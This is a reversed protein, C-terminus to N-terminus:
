SKSLELSNQEWRVSFFFGPLSKRFRCSLQVQLAVVYALIWTCTLYSYQSEEECSPLFRCLIGLLDAHVMWSLNKCITLPWHLSACCCLVGSIGLCLLLTWVWKCDGKWPSMLFILPLSGPSLFHSLLVFADLWPSLPLMGSVGCHLHPGSFSLYCIHFFSELQRSCSHSPQLERLWGTM